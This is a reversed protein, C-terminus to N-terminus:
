ASSSTSDPREQDRLLIEVRGAILLGDKALQREIRPLAAEDTAVVLVRAFGSRLGNRVNGAVDSKGTEIEIAVREAANEACVDVQGGIRPAEIQVSYGRQRYRQAYFHKWYAHAVSERRTDHNGDPLGLSERGTTTVRLVLKRTQGVPILSSELWGARILQEKVRQGLRVSMVLRKYRVRVPDDPWALVDGLFRLAGDGLAEEAGSGDAPKWSVSRTRHTSRSRRSSRSCTKTRAM